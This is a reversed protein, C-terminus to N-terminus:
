SIRACWVSSSDIVAAECTVTGRTRSWRSIPSTTESVASDSAWSRTALSFTPMVAWGLLDCAAPM